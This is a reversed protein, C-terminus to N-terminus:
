ASRKKRRAERNQHGPMVIHQGTAGEPVSSQPIEEDTEHACVAQFAYLGHRVNQPSGDENEVPIHRSQGTSSVAVELVKENDTAQFGTVGQSMYLTSNSDKQQPIWATWEVVRILVTKM